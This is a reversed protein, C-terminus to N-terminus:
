NKVKFARFISAMGFGRIVPIQGLLIDLTLLVRGPWLWNTTSFVPLLDTNGLLPYAIFGFQHYRDMCFGSASLIAAMEERTFGDESPDNGLAKSKAYEWRRIKRILWNDNAPESAIFVGKPKLVRNVEELTKGLFSKVHHLGGQIIVVEVSQDPLPIREVTGCVVKIWKKGSNEIYRATSEIAKVNLDLVVAANFSSPLRRCIEAGGCMLELLPGECGKPIERLIRSVWWDNYFINLPSKRRAFHYKEIAEKNKSLHAQLANWENDSLFVDVEARKPYFANCKSCRLAGNKERDIHSYCLPCVTKVTM